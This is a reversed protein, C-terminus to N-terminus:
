QGGGCNALLRVIYAERVKLDHAVCDGASNRQDLCIMLTEEIPKPRSAQLEPTLCSQRVTPAAVPTQSKKCCSPLLALSLVSLRLPTALWLPISRM